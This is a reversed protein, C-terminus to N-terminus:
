LLILAGVSLVMAAAVVGGIYGSLVMRGASSSWPPRGGKGKGDGMKVCASIESCEGDDNLVGCIATCNWETPTTNTYYRTLCCASSAVPVETWRYLASSINTIQDVFTQLSTGHHGIRTVTSDPVISGLAPPTTTQPAQADRATISHLSVYPPQLIDITITPISPLILSTTTAITTTAAQRKLHRPDTVELSTTPSAITLTILLLFALFAESFSM